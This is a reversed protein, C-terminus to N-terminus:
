KVMPITRRSLQAYKKMINRMESSTAVSAVNNLENEDDSDILSHSETWNGFTVRDESQVPDLSELEEIGQEHREIFEILQLEQSYLDLENLANKASELEVFSAHFGFKIIITKATRFSCNQRDIRGLLEGRKGQLQNGYFENKTSSKEFGVGKAFSKPILVGNWLRFM